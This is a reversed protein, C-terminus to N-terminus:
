SDKDAGVKPTGSLEPTGSLRPKGSLQLAFWSDCSFHGTCGMPGDLPQFGFSRYLDRARGMSKLTELYCTEFGAERADSLSRALIEAALGLGRAEPLFYMKRLECVKPDGKELPAFGGGGLVVGAREAVYFASRERTYTAYMQDVEPDSIAFGPGCAGHETMVTRIINAVAPDDDSRIPRVVADRRRRSRELAKAYLGMGRSVTQQDEPSLTALAAEVQRDAYAHAARLRDEGQATLHLPRRRGDSPDAEATLLGEDRLLQATRSAASKDIQLRESLEGVTIPSADGLEILTHCTAPSLEIEDLHARLFGLERVMQRSSRRFDAIDIVPPGSRAASPAEADRGDDSPPQSSNEGSM